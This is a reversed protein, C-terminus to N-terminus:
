TKDLGTMCTHASYPLPLTRRERHYWQSWRDSATSSLLTWPRQHCRSAAEGATETSVWLLGPLVTRFGSSSSLLPASMWLCLCQWQQYLRRRSENNWLTGCKLKPHRHARYFFFKWWEIFCCLARLILNLKLTRVTFIHNTPVNNKWCFRGLWM